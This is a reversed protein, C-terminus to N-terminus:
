MRHHDPILLRIIALTEQKGGAGNEGGPGVCSPCGDMCPCSNILEYASLLIEETIQYLRESFGIGAPINDYIVIGPQNNALLLRTDSHIGIDAPDCMLYIPALHGLVYALGSLGSRIRLTSEALSHCNHCLTILNDLQNAQDLSTFARLPIKHHVDHARNKEIAGCHQCCYNDRKRVIERIKNWRPGYDNRDNLWMGEQRLKEILNENLALWFATTQLSSPPMELDEIGLVENTLWKLMRFGKVQTTVTVEGYATIALFENTRIIEQEALRNILQIDIDQIPVTYYNTDKRSLIAVHNELDLSEVIFNQGEHLYVAKPHVLWNASQIDVEGIKHNHNDQEVQLSISHASANRLSTAQAPYQDAMWFYKDKSHFIQKENELFQLYEDTLESGLKGFSEGQIFPLEFAACRIHALLILLNNPDVLAQEPSKDLIFEPHNALFQDLPDSTCVLIALAAKYGRGARGAQQRTSAITGPYGIMLTANIEGIDIGLELANTAVVLRAKGQRLEKEIIRREGPLYGSRYGRIMEDVNHNEIILSSRTKQRLYILALEIIRRSRGFVLTQVDYAILDDSLRITEQLASRRIGLEQNSIPPNYILFHKEGRRSGDEDVLITPLETLKEIHERPNAITATTSIFQPFSGYYNAIRNLRRIVNTVHSGFVGRYIHAEDIVVFRLNRFFDSWNTHHPLIGIHLMDPNSLLIRANTRIAPRSSAPTDGDYIAAVVDKGKEKLHKSIDSLKIIQDQALAKTPFLYLARSNEDSLLADLIPLNYCYTKGSATGTTIVVNKRAKLLNWCRLQHCYLQNIGQSKLVEILDQNLDPPFAELQASRSPIVQWTSINNLISPDHRWRNILDNIEM